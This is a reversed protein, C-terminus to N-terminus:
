IENESLRFDETKKKKANERLWNTADNNEDKNLDQQGDHQKNKCNDYKPKGKQKKKLKLSVKKRKWRTPKM